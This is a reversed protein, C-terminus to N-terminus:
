SCASARASAARSRRRSRCRSLVTPIPHIPSERLVKWGLARRAAAARRRHVRPRRHEAALPAHVHPLGQRELRGPRVTVAVGASVEYKDGHARIRVDFKEGSKLPLKKKEEKGWVGDVRTNFVAEAARFNMKMHFPINASDHGHNDTSLNITIIPDVGKEKLNFEMVHGKVTVLQGPEMQKSLRANHPIPQSQSFFPHTNDTKWSM